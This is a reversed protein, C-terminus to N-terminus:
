IAKTSGGSTCKAVGDRSTPMRQPMDNTLM